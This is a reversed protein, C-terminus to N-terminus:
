TRKGATIWCKHPRGTSRGGQPELMRDLQKSWTEWLSIIENNIVTDDNKDQGFMYM